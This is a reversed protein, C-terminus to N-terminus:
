VPSASAAARDVALLPRTPDIRTFLLAAVMVMAAIVWLPEQYNGRATVAYGFFVSCVFGGLQGATNMTGTVTGAYRHGIDLCLAWAAPLMLDAIGFGLSSLVVIATKDRTLTMAILLLASVTLSVFGVLRRGIKLGFRVALRDSLFGGAINGLAGLLFPLASFIGMEAETFGAAKVLYTPFWGFYFWSGWAYCFYMTFILWLQRQRLLEAWPVDAHKGAEEAAGAAPRDKYLARWFLAWIVGAAGLLVFTLRWGVASQMPVVILPSLAGGLRSAAWIFGQTRARENVPFWRVIVGSMNPYAGAEGMGFLFRTTLLPLFGTALGTFCTFASWWLVIRTLVKRQGIRDGLAGTPIEFLGYALVFAGIVWGWREPTIHLEQQIRPGAVAISIRDLFTIIALATLLPLVLRRQEV